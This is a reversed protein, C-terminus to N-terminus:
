VTDNQNGTDNCSAADGAENRLVPLAHAAAEILNQLVNRRELCDRILKMMATKRFEDLMMKGTYVSSKM